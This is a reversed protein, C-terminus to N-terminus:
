GQVNQETLICSRTHKTKKSVEPVNNRARIKQTHTFVDLVNHNVGLQLYPQYKAQTHEIETCDTMMTDGKQWDNM